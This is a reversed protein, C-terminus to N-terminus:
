PNKPPGKPLVPTMESGGSGTSDSGLGLSPLPDGPLLEERLWPKRRLKPLQERVAAEELIEDTVHEGEIHGHAVALRAALLARAYQKKGMSQRAAELENSTGFLQECSIVGELTAPLWLAPDSSGLEHSGLVLRIDRDRRNRSSLWLSTVLSLVFGGISSGLVIGVELQDEPKVQMPKGYFLAVAVIGAIITLLFGTIGLIGILYPRLMARLLLRPTRVIEVTKCYEGSWNFTHYAKLPFLPLFLATVCVVADHDTQESLIKPKNWRVAAGQGCYMTGFGNATGPVGTVKRPLGM